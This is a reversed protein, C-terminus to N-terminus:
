DYNFLIDDYNRDGFSFNSLEDYMLSELVYILVISTMDSCWNTKRWEEKSNLVINQNQLCTNLRIVCYFVYKKFHNERDITSTRFYIKILWLFLRVIVTKDFFRNKQGTLFDNWFM